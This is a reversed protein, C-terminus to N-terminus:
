FTPAHLKELEETLAQLIEKLIKKRDWAQGKLQKMSTAGPLLDEAEANVNLGIGLIVYDLRLTASSHSRSEALVGCIKEGKVLIDNPLKFQSPIGYDKKLVHGVARCAM